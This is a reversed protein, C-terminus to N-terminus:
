KTKLANVNRQLEAEKQSQQHRYDDMQKLRNENSIMIKKLTDIENKKDEIMAKSKQFVGVL